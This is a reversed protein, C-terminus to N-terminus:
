KEEAVALSPDISSPQQWTSVPISCSPFATATMSIVFSPNPLSPPPPAPIRSTNACYYLDKAVEQISRGWLASLNLDGIILIQQVHKHCKSFLCPFAMRFKSNEPDFYM